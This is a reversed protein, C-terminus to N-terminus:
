KDASKRHTQTPNEACNEEDSDESDDSATTYDDDSYLQDSESESSTM